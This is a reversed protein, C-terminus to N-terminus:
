DRTTQEKTEHKDWMVSMSKNVMLEGTFANPLLTHTEEYSVTREFCTTKEWRLHVTGGARVLAEVANKTIYPMGYWLDKSANHDLANGLSRFVVEVDSTAWLGRKMQRWGSVEDRNWPLSDYYADTFFEFGGTTYHLFTSPACLWPESPAIDTAWGWVTERVRKPLPEFLEGNLARPSPNKKM